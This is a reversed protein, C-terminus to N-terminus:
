KIVKRKETTNTEVVVPKEVAVKKEVQAKPKTDKGQAVNARKEALLSEVREQSSQQQAVMEKINRKTGRRRRSDIFKERLRIEETPTTDMQQKIQLLDFDVTEGRMSTIKSM